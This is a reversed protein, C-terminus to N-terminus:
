GAAIDVRTGAMKRLPAVVQEAFNSAVKGGDFALNKWNMALVGATISGGSVSSFRKVDPLLGLENLRWLVGIHFVMARYGGGSLCVALGPQPKRAKDGPIDRVPSLAGTTGANTMVGRGM